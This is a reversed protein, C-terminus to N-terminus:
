SSAAATAAKRAAGSVVEVVSTEQHSFFIMLGMVILVMGGIILGARWAFQPADVHFADFFSNVASVAGGVIPVNGGPLTLSASTPTLTAFPKAASIQSSSYQIFGGSLAQPQNSDAVLYNGSSARGVVTVYHGHVNKDSGGFAGAEGVGLITPVGRALNANITSLANAGGGISLPTGSSAGLAALESPTSTGTPDTGFQVGRRSLNQVLGVTAGAGSQIGQVVALAAEGCANIFGIGWQTVANAGPIITDAM